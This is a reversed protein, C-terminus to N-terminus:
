GGTVSIIFGIVFFLFSLASLFGLATPLAFSRVVPGIAQDIIQLLVRTSVVVQGADDTPFPLPTKEEEEDSFDQGSDFSIFGPMDILAKFWTVIALIGLVISAGLFYWMYQAVFPTM